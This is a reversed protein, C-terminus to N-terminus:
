LQTCQVYCHQHPYRYIQKTTLTQYILTKLDQTLRLGSGLTLQTWELPSYKLRGFEENPRVIVPAECEHIKKGLCVTKSDELHFQTPYEKNCLRRQCENVIRRDGPTLYKKIIEGEENLIKIALNTCCGEHPDTDIQAIVKACTLLLGTEALSVALTGRRNGVLRWGQQEFDALIHQMEQQSQVCLQHLIGAISPSTQVQLFIAAGSPIEQFIDEDININDEEERSCAIINYFQTQQCHRRCIKIDQLLQFAVQKSDSRVILIDSHSSNNKDMLVEMAYEQNSIATLLPCSPLDDAHIIITGTGQIGEKVANGEEDVTLRLGLKPISVIKSTLDLISLEQDLTLVLRAQITVPHDYSEIYYSQIPSRFTAGYTPECEFTSSSLTSNHLNFEFTHIHGIKLNTLKRREHGLKVVMEKKNFASSCQEATVGYEDEYTILTSTARRIGEQNPKCQSTQIKLHLHCRQSKTEINMNKKFITKKINGKKKKYNKYDAMKCSGVQSLNIRGLESTDKDECSYGIAYTNGDKPNLSTSTETSLKDVIEVHFKQVRTLSGMSAKCIWVGSHKM